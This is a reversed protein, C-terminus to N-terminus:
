GARHTSPVSANRSRLTSRDYTDRWINQRDHFLRDSKSDFVRSKRKSRKRYRQGGGREGTENQERRGGRQVVVKPIGPRFRRKKGMKHERLQLLLFSFRDILHPLSDRLISRNRCEM